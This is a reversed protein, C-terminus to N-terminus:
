YTADSVHGRGCALLTAANEVCLVERCRPDRDHNGDWEGMKFWREYGVCTETLGGFLLRIRNRLGTVLPLDVYATGRKSLCRKIERFVHFPDFLHEIVAMAILHDVEGDPFPWKENLNSALFEISTATRSWLSIWASSTTSGRPEALILL